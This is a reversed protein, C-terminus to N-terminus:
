ELPRESFGGSVLREAEGGPAWIILAKMPSDGPVRHGVSDEPRVVGLMGPKLLYPTGNVVHELEGELVYFIEIVGHNHGRDIPNNMGAGAPLTIEGIEIEGSGLNAQELLMKIETGNALGLIRTGVPAKDYPVQAQTMSGATVALALWLLNLKTRLKM